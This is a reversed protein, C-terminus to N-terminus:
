WPLRSFYSFIKESMEPPIMVRIIGSFILELPYNNRSFFHQLGKQSRPQLPGLDWFQFYKKIKKEGFQINHYLQM